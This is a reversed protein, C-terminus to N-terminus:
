YMQVEAEADNEMEVTDHIDQNLATFETGDNFIKHTSLAVSSQSKLQIADVSLHAQSFLLALVAMSTKSGSFM